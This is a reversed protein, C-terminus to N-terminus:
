GPEGNKICLSMRWSDRSRKRSNSSCGVSLLASVALMACSSAPRVMVTLRSSPKSASLFIRGGGGEAVPEFRAM